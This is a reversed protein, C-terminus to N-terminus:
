PGSPKIELLDLIMELQSDNGALSRIQERAQRLLSAMRHQCYGFRDTSKICDVAFQKVAADDSRQKLIILVRLDGPRDQISHVIPYSFKGESVGEYVGKNGSCTNSRPNQNDDRIQFLGGLTLSRCLTM